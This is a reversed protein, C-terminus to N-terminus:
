LVDEVQEWEEPTNINNLVARDDVAVAFARDAILEDLRAGPDMRLVESAIERAIWLVKGRRGHYYPRIVKLSLRKTWRFVYRVTAPLIGVTDVPLILYGESDPAARLGAQVSSLRGSQWRENVVARADGLHPRILEHDCGLVIVVEACGGKKLVDAQHRALPVGGPMPLLAKSQGMRESAGAALVIGAHIM